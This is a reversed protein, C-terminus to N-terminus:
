KKYYQFMDFDMAYREQIERIYKKDVFAKLLATNRQRIREDHTLPRKELERMFMEIFDGYDVKNDFKTEPFKSNKHM